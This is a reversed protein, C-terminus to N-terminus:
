INKLYVIVDVINLEGDGNFDFGKQIFENESVDKFEGIGSVYQLFSIVDAINPSNGDDNIKPLKTMVSVLTVDSDVKFNDSSILKGNLKWGSLYYGRKYYETVFKPSEGSKVSETGLVKNDESLYTVEFFVTDSKPAWEATLTIDHEPMTFVSLPKHIEKTYPNRWGVFVYGEKSVDDGVFRLLLKSGASGTYQGPATGLVGEGLAYTLVPKDVPHVPPNTPDPDDESDGPIWVATFVVSETGISYLNGVNYRKSEISDTWGAFKMGECKVDPGIGPLAVFGGAHVKSSEPPNGVADPGLYYSVTYLVPDPGVAGGNGGDGGNGDGGGIRKWQAYLTVDKTATYSGRNVYSDGSGDPKSNWEVFDYGERTYNLARLKSIKGYKISQDHMRGEVNEGNKDFEIWCEGYDWLSTFTLDKDSDLILMTGPKRVIYENTVPNLITTNWAYFSARDFTGSYEPLIIYDGIRAVIPQPAPMNGEETDFSITIEPNVSWKTYIDIEETPLKSIDYPRTFGSDLYYGEFTYGFRVPNDPTIPIDHVSISNIYGFYRTDQAQPNGCVFNSFSWVGNSYISTVWFRWISNPIDIQEDGRGYIHGIWGRLSAPTQNTSENL